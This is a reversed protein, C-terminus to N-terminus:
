KARSVHVADWPEPSPKSLQERCIESYHSACHDAPEMELYQEFGILARKFDGAVYASFADEYVRVMDPISEGPQLERILGCVATAAQKGVLRFHGLTRCLFRDGALERAKEGVAIDVHWYKTLGEIRSAVNVADGLVTFEMRQPAGVNGVLVEGHELGIGIKHTSRKEAQWKENLQALAVRM